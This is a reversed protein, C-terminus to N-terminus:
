GARRRSRCRRSRRRCGAAFKRRRHQRRSRVEAACRQAAAPAPEAEVVNAFALLKGDPTFCFVGQSGGDLGQGAQKLVKAFLKGEADQLRRHIHQDVAVPVFRTRLLRLM